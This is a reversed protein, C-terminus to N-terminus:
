PGIQTAPDDFNSLPFHFVQSYVTATLVALLVGLLVPSLLFGAQQKPLDPVPAPNPASVKRRAKSSM